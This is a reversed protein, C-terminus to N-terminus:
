CNSGERAAAARAGLLTRRVKSALLHNLSAIELMNTEAEAAQDVLTELEKCLAENEMQLQAKASADLEAEVDVVEEERWGLPAAGDAAAGGGSGATSASGDAASAASQEPRRSPQRQADAWTAALPGGVDFSGAEEAAAGLRQDRSEAVRRVRHSRFESAATAVGQLREYLLQVAMGRHAALQDNAEEEATSASSAAHQELAQISATCSVLFQQTGADVEEFEAESESRLGEELLYAAHARQLKSATTQIAELLRRSEGDFASRPKRVRPLIAAAASASAPEGLVAQRAARAAHAADRFAPTIDLAMDGRRLPLLWARGSSVRRSGRAARVRERQSAVCVRCLALRM